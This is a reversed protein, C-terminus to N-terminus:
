VVSKRDLLSSGNFFAGDTDLWAGRVSADRAYVEYEVCLAEGPPLAGCQWTHTDVKRLPVERKGCWARLRVIHRAFERVLYSGPLWVPLWFRQGDRAPKCCEATVRFLHAEPRHLCLTYRVAAGM